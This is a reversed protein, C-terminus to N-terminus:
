YGPNQQLNPNVEIQQLPIPWLSRFSTNDEECFGLLDCTLNYRKLDMFRLGEGVFELRRQELIESLAQANTLGEVRLLGARERIMNIDSIVDASAMAAGGAMRANAEARILYMEALRIIIVNDANNTVDDYKILRNRNREFRTTAELREDKFFTTDTVTENNVEREVVVTDTQALFTNVVGSSVYFRQGSTSPDSSTGLANADNLTFNLEFIAENSGEQTYLTGFDEVLEYPGSNIVESANAEAEAWNGQQLHVRALLATAALGSARENGATGELLMEADQLDAIVAAYVEAETARPLNQIEEITTSPSTVVPVGGFVKLLDFHALARIFKMEGVIQDREEATVDDSDVLREANRITINARNIATYIGAWTSAIQLNSANIRKSAVERDTTFTGAFTLNDAYLGQYLLYRQGYYDADQLASYAGLASRNLTTFDVVAGDAEIATTPEVDLVEECGTFTFLGIAAALIIPYKKM